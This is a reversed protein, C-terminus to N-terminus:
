GEPAFVPESANSQYSAAWIAGVMAAGFIVAYLPYLYELLSGHQHLIAALITGEGIVGVAFAIWSEEEPKQWGHVLTPIYAAADIAIAVLMVLLPTDLTLWLAIGALAGLFIVVEFRTVGRTAYNWGLLLVLLCGITSVGTALASGWAREQVSVITMLGLLLTWIVWSVLRPRVGHKVIDRIYPVYAASALITGAILLLKIM